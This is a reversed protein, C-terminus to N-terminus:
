VAAAHNGAGNFSSAAGSRFEAANLYYGLEKRYYDITRRTGEEFGVEATWGLDHRIRTTDTYYSGIDILKLEPPFPQQVPAPADAFGAVTSAIEALSLAENGGVNLTRSLPDRAVGARLFADVADDVYIPDRLQRGDGFIAITEGLLAKRIFRGLFGQAPLNLAMRPGYVNTLCLVVADLQGTDTFIRHYSTAAFKHIGNFDLPRIPHNEDVPLYAPAGYIQRTSAYVIRVGPRYRACANLFRLQASANIQKDREPDRMSEIHSVEGALNFIFDSSRLDAAFDAADAIDSHVIRIPVSGPISEQSLNRPNSGCGQVTSDVVTVHAGAAALRLALNSGLFGLGGTVLIRSGRYDSVM